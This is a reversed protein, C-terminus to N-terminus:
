VEVSDIDIAFSNARYLINVNNYMQRYTISLFKYFQFQECLVHFITYQKISIWAIDTNANYININRKNCNYLPIQIQHAQRKQVHCRAREVQRGHPVDQCFSVSGSPGSRVQGSLGLSIGVILMKFLPAKHM